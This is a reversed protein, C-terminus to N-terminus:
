TTNETTFRGEGASHKEVSSQIRKKINPPASQFNSDQDVQMRAAVLM